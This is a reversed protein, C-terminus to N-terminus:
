SGFMTQLEAGSMQDLARWAQSPNRMWAQRFQDRAPASSYGGPSPAAPFNARQVTQPMPPDLELYWDACASPNLLIKAFESLLLHAMDAVEAVPQLAESRPYTYSILNDATTVLQELVVAQQEIIQYARGYAAAVQDAKQLALEQANIAQELFQIYQQVQSQQQGM